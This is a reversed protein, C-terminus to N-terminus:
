ATACVASGGGDRAHLGVHVDLYLWSPYLVVIHHGCRSRPLWRVHWGPLTSYQVLTRLLGPTCAEVTEDFDRTDGTRNNSLDAFAQFKSAKLLNSPLHLNWEVRASSDYETSQLENPLSELIGHWSCRVAMTVTALNCADFGPTTNRLTTSTRCKRRPCYRQTPFLTADTSM